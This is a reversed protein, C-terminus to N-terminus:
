FPDPPHGVDGSVVQMRKVLRHPRQPSGCGGPGIARGARPVSPVTGGAGSPQLRAPTPSRDCRSFLPWGGAVACVPAVGPSHVRVPCGRRPHAGPPPRSHCCTQTAGSWSEAFEAAPNPPPDSYCEPPHAWRLRLQTAQAVNGVPRGLWGPVWPAVGSRHFHVRCCYTALLTHDGASGVGPGARGGGCLRPPRPSPRLSPSPLPRSFSPPPFIRCAVLM